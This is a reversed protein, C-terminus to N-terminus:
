ARPPSRGPALLYLAFSAEPRTRERARASALEQAPRTELTARTDLAPRLSPSWLGCHAHARAEEHADGPRWLPGQDEAPHAHAAGPEVHVLSGHECVEHPQAAAHWNAALMGLAYLCLALWPPM